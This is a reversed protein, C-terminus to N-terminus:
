ADEGEGADEGQDEVPPAYLLVYMDHSYRHVEPGDLGAVPHPTRDPDLPTRLVLFGPRAMLEGCRAAQELVRTRGTEDRMMAYPPDIFVLQPPATIRALVSPALADAMVVELGEELGLEKANRTLLGSVKRDWEVALVHAAGRSVMELSITGVGAFLDVVVADEFWGRLLNCVSEKVRDPYPRTTAADPPAALRRGRCEGAIIRPM